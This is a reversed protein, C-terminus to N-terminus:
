KSWHYPCFYHFFVFIVRQELATDALALGRVVIQPAPAGAAAQHALETLVTPRYLFPEADHEEWVPPHRAPWERGSTRCLAIQFLECTGIKLKSSGFDGAQPDDRRGFMYAHAHTQKLRGGLLSVSCQNIAIALVAAAYTVTSPLPVTPRQVTM